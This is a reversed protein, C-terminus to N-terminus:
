APKHFKLIGWVLYSNKGAEIWHNLGTKMRDLYDQGCTPALEEYRAEVERLVSSYHNVLQESFNEFSVEQWGLERAVQRYFGVSGLSDLHIRALVPELVGEPCDDAQMPDTFVFDGGDKLVRDVEELVLRRNGSHLIADQSWVVEYSQNPFPLAEFSGDFVRIKDQLGSQANAQRNRENQIESLNLCDVQFGKTKALYRASGGYGAGIDLVKTGPQWADLTQAMRAVTRQSASAIAEDPRTYIGIHIDEGGWVQYYFGDASNSNYYQKAQAVVASASNSM